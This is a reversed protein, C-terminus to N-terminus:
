MTMPNTLWGIWDLKVNNNRHCFLNFAFLKITDIITDKRYKKAQFAVDSRYTWLVWISTYSIVLLANRRKFDGSNDIWSYIEGMNHPQFSRDGIWFGVGRWVETAIVCEFFVHGISEVVGSCSPCLMSNMDVGKRDLNDLTPLRGLSLRWVLSNVKIPVFRLWRMTTVVEALMLADIHCRLSSVTLTDWM